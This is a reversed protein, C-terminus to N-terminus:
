RTFYSTIPARETWEVVGWQPKDKLPLYGKLGNTAVAVSAPEPSFPKVCLYTSISLDFCVSEM